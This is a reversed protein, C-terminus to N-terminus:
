ARPGAKDKIGDKFGMKSLVDKVTLGEVCLPLSRPTSVTFVTVFVRVDARTEFEFYLVRPRDDTSSLPVGLSYKPAPRVPTSGEFPKSSIIVLGEEVWYGVAAGQKLEGTSCRFVTEKKGVQYRILLLKLLTDSARLGFPWLLGFLLASLGFVKKM